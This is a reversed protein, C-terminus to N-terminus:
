EEGGASLEDTKADLWDRLTAIADEVLLVAEADFHSDDAEVLANTAHHLVLDHWYSPHLISGEDFQPECLGPNLLHDSSAM